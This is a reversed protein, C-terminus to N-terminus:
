LLKESLMMKVVHGCCALCCSVGLTVACLMVSQLVLQPDASGAMRQKKISDRTGRTITSVGVPQTVEVATQQLVQQALQPLDEYQAYQLLLQLCPLSSCTGIGAEVLMFLLEDDVAAMSRKLLSDAAARSLQIPDFTGDELGMYIELLSCSCLSNPDKRVRKNPSPSLCGAGSLSNDTVPCLCLVHSYYPQGGAPHEPAATHPLQIEEGPSVLGRDGTLRFVLLVQEQYMRRQNTINLYLRQKM